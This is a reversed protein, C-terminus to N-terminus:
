RIRLRRELMRLLFAILYCTLMYMLGVIVWVEIVRFTLTNVKRALYTLEIVAISSALSTDKFLSIFNNSLSPMVNRFMIPLQIFRIIQRKRLGIALGAEVIGRSIGQLGARFVETLYAGAYLSLATVFSAHKSLILGTDPLGFYCIFILVLLPVNRLITVYLGSLNRLWRHRSIACFALLIGLIMGIFLSIAALYLGLGLGKLFDPIYKYVLQFNLYYAM